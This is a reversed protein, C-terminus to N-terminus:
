AVGELEPLGAEPLPLSVPKGSFDFVSYKGSVWNRPDLRQLTRVHDACLSAQYSRCRVVYLSLLNCRRGKVLRAIRCRNGVFSRSSMPEHTECATPRPGSM